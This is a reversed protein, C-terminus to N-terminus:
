GESNLVEKINSIIDSPTFSQGDARGIRHVKQRSVHREVELAMQGQNLEAVFLARCGEAIRKFQEEPFPWLTIPRFMGICIGEARLAAVAARVAMSTGGFCVVLIDADDTMYEEAQCIDDKNCDIKNKLRELLKEAAEHNNTPFGDEDHILGTINYRQGAGIPPIHPVYEDMAVHYPAVSYNKRSETEYTKAEPLEISERLHGVMEDMLFIVPTRYKEALYFARMILTYTESVSSPALVIIPHDGHTGWRSQMLDSQSPSTPMGTSPGQRQVNVIVCPLEAIAAYGINEQMLSFGPGSTATMALRGAASAGLVCALSSIEDEMQIFVGRIKPLQMASQEAIETSPTIPYGAFFSMGAAIAGKVCAENGQMLTFNNMQWLRWIPVCISAADADLALTPFSRSAQFM